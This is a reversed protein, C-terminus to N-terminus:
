GDGAGPDTLTVKKLDFSEDALQDATFTRHEYAVGRTAFSDGDDARTIRGLERLVVALAECVRVSGLEFGEGFGTSAARAARAQLFVPSCDRDSHCRPCASEGATRELYSGVPRPRRGRRGLSM